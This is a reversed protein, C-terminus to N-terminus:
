PSDTLDLKFEKRIKKFTHIYSYPMYMAVYMCVYTCVYILCMCSVNMYYNVYKMRGDGQGDSYHLYTM